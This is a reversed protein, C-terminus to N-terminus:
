PGITSWPRVTRASVFVAPRVEDPHASFTVLTAGTEDDSYDLEFDGTSGASEGKEPIDIEIEIRQGYQDANELTFEGNAFKQEAQARYMEALEGGDGKEYYAVAM